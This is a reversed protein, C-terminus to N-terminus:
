QIKEDKIEKKAKKIKKIVNGETEACFSVIDGEIAETLFREMKNLLARHELKSLLIYERSDDEWENRYQRLSPIYGILSIIETEWKQRSTGAEVVFKVPIPSWKVYDGISWANRSCNGAVNSYNKDKYSFLKVEGKIIKM